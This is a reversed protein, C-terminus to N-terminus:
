VDDGGVVGLIARQQGRPWVAPTNANMRPRDYHAMGFDGAASRRVCPREVFSAIRPALATAATGPVM